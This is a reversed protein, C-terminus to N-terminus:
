PENNWLKAKEVPFLNAGLDRWLLNLLCEHSTVFPTCGIKPSSLSLQPFFPFPLNWTWVGVWVCMYKNALGDLHMCTCICRSYLCLHMCIPVCANACVRVFVNIRVCGLGQCVLRYFKKKKTSDRLSCIATRQQLTLWWESVNAHVCVCVCESVYM